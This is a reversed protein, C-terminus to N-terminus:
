EMFKQRFKEEAKLSGALILEDKGDFVTGPEPSTSFSESKKIGLLSCDTKERMGTDALTKGVFSEPVTVLFVNLAESFFSSNSPKLIDM